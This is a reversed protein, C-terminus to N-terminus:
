PNPTEATQKPLRLVCSGFDLQDPHNPVLYQPPISYLSAQGQRVLGAKLLIRMNRSTTATHAGIRKALQKNMLRGGHLLERLLRLRPTAGLAIVLKDWPVPEVPPVAAAPPTPTEM